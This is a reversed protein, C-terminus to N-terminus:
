DIDLSSRDNNPKSDQLSIIADLLDGNSRHLALIAEEQSIGAIQSMVLKVDGPAVRLSTCRELFDRSRKESSSIDDQDAESDKQSGTSQYNQPVYTTSITPEEIITLSGYRDSTLAAELFQRVVSAGRALVIDELREIFSGLGEYSPDQSGMPIESSFSGLSQVGFHSFKGKIPFEVNLNPPLQFTWWPFRPKVPLSEPTDFLGQPSRPTIQTEQSTLTQSRLIQAVSTSSEERPPEGLSRPITSVIYKEPPETTYIKTGSLTGNSHWSKWECVRVGQHCIGICRPKGDPWYELHPGTREGELTFSVLRLSGDPYKEEHRELKVDAM